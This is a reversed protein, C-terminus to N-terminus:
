LVIVEFDSPKARKRDFASVNLVTNDMTLLTQREQNDKTSKRQSIRKGQDGRKKRRQKGKWSRNNTRCVKRVFDFEDQLSTHANMREAEDADTDSSASM